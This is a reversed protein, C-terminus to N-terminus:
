SPPNIVKVTWSKEDSVPGVAAKATITYSGAEKFAHDVSSSMGTASETTGDAFDWHWNVTGDTNSAYCSVPDGVLYAMHDYDHPRAPTCNLDVRVQPGNTGTPKMESVEVIREGKIPGAVKKGQGDLLADGVVVLTVTYTGIRGYTHDVVEGTATNQASQPDGFNWKLETVKLGKAMAAPYLFHLTTGVAVHDSPDVNFAAQTSPEVEGICGSMGIIAFIGAIAYCANKGIGNGNM